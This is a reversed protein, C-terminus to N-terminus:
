VEELGVESAILTAAFFGDLGLATIKARQMEPAGDTVVGLTVGHERLWRLTPSRRRTRHSACRFPMMGTPQSNKWAPVRVGPSFTAYSKPLNLTRAIATAM